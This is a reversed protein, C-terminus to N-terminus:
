QAGATTPCPGRIAAHGCARSRIAVRRSEQGPLRGASREKSDFRVAHIGRRVLADRKSLLLRLTRQRGPVGYYPASPVLSRSPPRSMLVAVLALMTLAIFM